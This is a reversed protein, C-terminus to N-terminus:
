TRNVHALFQVENTFGRAVEKTVLTSTVLTNAM